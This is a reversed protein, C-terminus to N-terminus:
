GRCAVYCAIVVGAGGAGTSPNVTKFISALVQKEADSLVYIDTLVNSDQAVADAFAKDTVLQRLAYEFGRSSM